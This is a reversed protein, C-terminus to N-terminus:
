APRRRSQGRRLASPHGARRERDRRRLFVAGYRRRPRRRSRDKRRPTRSAGSSKRARNGRWSRRRDSNRRSSPNPWRFRHPPRTSHSQGAARLRRASGTRGCSEPHTGKALPEKMWRPALNQSSQAKEGGVRRACVSFGDFPEEYLASQTEGRREVRDKRGDRDLRAERRSGVRCLLLLLPSPSAM